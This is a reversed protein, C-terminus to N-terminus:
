YDIKLNVESETHPFFTDYNVSNKMASPCRGASNIERPWWKVFLLNRIYNGTRFTERTTVDNLFTNRKRM